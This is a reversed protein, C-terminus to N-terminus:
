EEGETDLVQIQMKGRLVKKGEANKITVKLFILRYTDNKETVEGSICLEDGPYVPQAFKIEVSQILSYKGPLYVGALTSLFSSTLMGYAVRGKYNKSVAYEGDNHLPNVDGTMERFRDLMEDTLKVTFSEKTGIDIEDYTYSNM